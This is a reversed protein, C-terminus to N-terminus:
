REFRFVTQGIRIVDGDQLFAKGSLMEDNIYTHNRSHLDEIQYQNRLPSIVVHHHSVYADALVIDNDSGRGITLAESFSIKKGLATEDYSELVTLSVKMDLPSIKKEEAKSKIDQYIARMTKYVFGCLFFLILYELAITLITMTM